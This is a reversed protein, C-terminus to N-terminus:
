DEEKTIKGLIEEMNMIRLLPESETFTFMKTPPKIKAEMANVEKWLEEERGRIHSDIVSLLELVEMSPNPNDRVWKGILRILEVLDQM